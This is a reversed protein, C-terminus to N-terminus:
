FEGAKLLAEKDVPTARIEGNNNVELKYVKGNPARLNVSSKADKALLAVGELSLTSVEKGFQLDVKSRRGNKATSDAVYISMHNHAEGDNTVQHAVLSCMFKGDPTQFVIHPYSDPTAQKIVIAPQNDKPHIHVTEYFIPM